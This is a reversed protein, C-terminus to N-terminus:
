IRRNKLSASRFSGVVILVKFLWEMSILKLLSDIKEIRSEVKKAAGDLSYGDEILEQILIIKKINALNFQRSKSELDVTNIIGKEEWYRLKRIPVNTIEAVESIGVRINTLFESYTKSAEDKAM